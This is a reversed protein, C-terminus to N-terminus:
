FGLGYSLQRVEFGLDEVIAEAERWSPALAHVQIEAAELEGMDRRWDQFAEAEMGTAVDLLRTRGDERAVAAVVAHREPTPCADAAHAKFIYRQGSQGRWAVIGDQIRLREERIEPRWNPDRHRMQSVARGWDLGRRRGM